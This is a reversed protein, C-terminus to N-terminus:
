AYGSTIEPNYPVDVPRAPDSATLAFALVGRAPPSGRRGSGTTVAEGHGFIASSVDQGRAASGRLAEGARASSVTVFAHVAWGALARLVGFIQTEASQRERKPGLVSQGTIHGRDAHARLGAGGLVRPLSRSSDAVDSRQAYHGTTARSQAKTTDTYCIFPARVRRLPQDKDQRVPDLDHIGTRGAETDTRAARPGQNM